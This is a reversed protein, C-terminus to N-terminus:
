KQSFQKKDEGEEPEKLAQTHTNPFPRIPKEDLPRVSVLLISIILYQDM